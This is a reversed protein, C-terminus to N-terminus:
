KGYLLVGFWCDDPIMRCLVSPHRVIRFSRTDACHVRPCSHPVIGLLVNRHDTITGQLIYVM